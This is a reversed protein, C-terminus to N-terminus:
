YGLGTPRKISRSYDCKDCERTIELYDTSIWKKTVKQYHQKNKGKGSSFPCVELYEISKDKIKNNFIRKRVERNACVMWITPLVFLLIGAAFYLIIQDTPTIDQAPKSTRSTTQVFGLVLSLVALIIFSRLIYTDLMPTPIRFHKGQLLPYFMLFRRNVVQLCFLSLVLIASLGFFLTVRKELILYINAALISV